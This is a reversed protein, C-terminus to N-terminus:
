NNVRFEKLIDDETEVLKTELCVKLGLFLMDNNEQIGDTDLSWRIEM